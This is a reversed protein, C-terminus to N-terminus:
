VSLFQPKNRYQVSEFRGSKKNAAGISTIILMEPSQPNPKSLCPCCAGLLCGSLASTPNGIRRFRAVDCSNNVRRVKVVAWTWIMVRIEEAHGTNSQYEVTDDPFPFATTPFRVLNITMYAIM